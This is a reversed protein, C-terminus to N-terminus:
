GFGKAADPSLSGHCPSVLAQRAESVNVLKMRALKVRVLRVRVLRVRAPRIVFLWIWGIKCGCM